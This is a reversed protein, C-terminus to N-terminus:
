LTGLMAVLVSFTAVAAAAEDHKPGAPFSAVVASFDKAVASLDTPSPATSLAAVTAQAQTLATNITAITAPSLKSEDEVIPAIGQLMALVTEAQATAKSTAPPTTSGAGGPVTSQAPAFLGEFFELVSSFIDM